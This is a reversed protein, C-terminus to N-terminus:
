KTRAVLSTGNTISEAITMMESSNLTNSTLYFDVGSASWYVSNDGLAGITNGLIVPEGNVPVIEMEDNIKSAEEVLIFPDVGAFTM